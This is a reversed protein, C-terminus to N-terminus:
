NCIASQLNVIVPNRPNPGVIIEVSHLAPRNVRPIAGEVKRPRNVARQSSREANGDAARSLIPGSTAMM